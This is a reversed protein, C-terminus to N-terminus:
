AHRVAPHLVVVVQPIMLWAKSISRDRRAAAIDAVKARRPVAIGSRTGSPSEGVNAFSATLRWCHSLKLRFRLTSGPGSSLTTLPSSAQRIGAAAAARSPPPDVPSRYPLIAAEFGFVRWRQCPCPSRRNHPRTAHGRQVSAFRCDAAATPLSDTPRYVPRRRMRWM